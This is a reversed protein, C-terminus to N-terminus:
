LEKKETLVYYYIFWGIFLFKVMEEQSFEWDDNEEEDYEDYKKIFNLLDKKKKESITNKEIKKSLDKLFSIILLNENM